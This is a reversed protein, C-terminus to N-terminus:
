QKPTYPEADVTITVEQAFAEKDYARKTLIQYDPGNVLFGGWISSEAGYPKDVNGFGAKTLADALTQNPKLTLKM